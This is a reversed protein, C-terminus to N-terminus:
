SSVDVGYWASIKHVRTAVKRDWARGSDKKRAVGQLGFALAIMAFLSLFATSLVILVRQPKTKKEPPVARDLVVLVPNDKQENIKAQEYLPMLFELIKQQTVVDRYLRITQLGAGPFQALKKDLEALELRAQQLSGNDATVSRELVSVEIEK